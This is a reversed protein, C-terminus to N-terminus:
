SQGAWPTPLDMKRKLFLFYHAEKIYNQDSVIPNQVFKEFHRKLLGDVIGEGFHEKILGGLVARLHLAAARVDPKQRKIPTVLEETREMEFLGNAEVLTELESASPYYFPLNFSDVTEEEIIGETAMDQLCSGLTKFTEGLISESLQAEEPFGMIILAMLGGPVLEQARASLFSDLDKGYQIFYAEKVEKAAGGYHIRGENWAPSNKDTVEEPVKSLWQLSTSCHAFHLTSRPFLRRHFSGPVGAASYQRNSPLNKFLCNFDNDVHDNFFVQFEPIKSELNMSKHKNRVAEIINEIAIFTNPGVSCGFDAIRFTDLPCVNYSNRLDLNQDILENMLEKASDLSLKQYNSNQRYSCPGDGGEMRYKRYGLEEKNM